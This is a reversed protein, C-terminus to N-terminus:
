PGTGALESFIAPIGKACPLDFTFEFAKRMEGAFHWASNIPMDETVFGARSWITVQIDRCETISLRHANSVVTPAM